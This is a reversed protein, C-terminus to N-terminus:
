RSFATKITKWISKLKYSLGSQRPLAPAVEIKANDDVLIGAPETSIVQTYPSPSQMREIADRPMVGVDEFVIPAALEAQIKVLDAAAGKNQEQIRLYERAKARGPGGNKIWIHKFESTAKSSYYPQELNFKINNTKEVLAWAEDNIDNPGLVALDPMHDYLGSDGYFLPGHVKPLFDIGGEVFKWSIDGKKPM